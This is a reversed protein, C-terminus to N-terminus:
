AKARAALYGRWQRVLTGETIGLTAKIDGTAPAAQQDSLAVYLSILKAQGYREAIMRCALWASEYAAAIDGRAADFDQDDPLKTPGRKKRLDSILDSAVVATPVKVASYAVYDAFGESLWIPVPQVTIARTALHTLEHALVVRRGLAGLTRWASPNVVVRDGRSLGSDFSGTTVAAIQALGKGDSGILAAMDTQSSPYVVVPHRSWPRHWVKGVDSVGRDAEGALRTLETKSADGLVLAARGKVV